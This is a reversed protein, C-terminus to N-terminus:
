KFQGVGRRGFERHDDADNRRQPNYKLLPHNPPVQNLSGFLHIFMAYANCEYVNQFLTINGNLYKWYYDETNELEEQETAARIVFKPASGLSTIRGNKDVTVNAYTYEGASSSPDLVSVPSSSTMPTPASEISTIRGMNDVTINAYTYEGAPSSTPPTPASKDSIKNWSAVAYELDQKFHSPSYLIIRERHPRGPTPFRGPTPLSDIQFSIASMM